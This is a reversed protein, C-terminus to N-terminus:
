IDLKHFFFTPMCKIIGMVFRWRKPTYIVGKGQNLANVIQKAVVEVKALSSRKPQINATMPTLTPGPKILSVRVNSKYFRHQLGQVYTEVLSKAAGYIYNAKRGRDGAISGIVALQGKNANQMERAFAEAFLVTSIGNFTYTKILASLTRAKLDLAVEDLRQKDRGALYLEINSYQQVWLRLCHQAILSTAGVVVIKMVNNQM